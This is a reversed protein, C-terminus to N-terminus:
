VSGDLARKLLVHIDEFVVCIHKKLEFQWQFYLIFPSASLDISKVGCSGRITNTGPVKCYSGCTFASRESVPELILTAIGRKCGV